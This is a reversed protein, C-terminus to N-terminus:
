LSIANNRQTIAGAASLGNACTIIRYGNDIYSTTIFGATGNTAIGVETSGNAPIVVSEVDKLNIWNVADSQFCM